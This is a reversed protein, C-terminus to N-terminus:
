IIVTKSNASGLLYTKANIYDEHSYFSVDKTNKTNIDAEKKIWNVSSEGKVVISIASIFVYM